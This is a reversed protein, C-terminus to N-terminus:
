GERVLRLAEDKSPMSGSHVMTGNVVVGPPRMLGYGLITQLDDVLEVTADIGNQEVVEIFLKETAHCTKCGTGLILIELTM